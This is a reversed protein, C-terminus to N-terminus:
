CPVSPKNWTYGVYKELRIKEESLGKQMLWDGTRGVSFWLM